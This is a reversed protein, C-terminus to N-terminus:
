VLFSGSLLVLPISNILVSSEPSTDPEDTTQNQEQNEDRDDNQAATSTMSTTSSTSSPVLGDDNPKAIDDVVANKAFECSFTFVRDEKKM